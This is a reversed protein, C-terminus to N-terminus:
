KKTILLYNANSGMWTIVWGTGLVKEIHEKRSEMTFSNCKVELGIIKEKRDKGIEIQIAPYIHSSRLKEIAEPYNM